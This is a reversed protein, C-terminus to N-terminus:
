KSGIAGKFHNVATTAPEKALVARAAGVAVVSVLLCSTLRALM